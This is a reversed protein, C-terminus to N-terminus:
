KLNIFGIICFSNKEFFRKGFAIERKVFRKRNSLLVLWLSRRPSTLSYYPEWFHGDPPLPPEPFDRFWTKLFRGAAASLSFLWSTVIAAFFAAAFFGAAFFAGAFFFYSL